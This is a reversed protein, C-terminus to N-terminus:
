SPPSMRSELYVRLFDHMGWGGHTRNWKLITERAQKLRVAEAALSASATALVEIEMRPVHTQDSVRIRYLGPAGVGVRAAPQGATWDLPQVAPGTFAAAQLGDVTVNLSYKGPPLVRLVPAISIEGQPTVAAVMEFNAAMAARGAAAPFARDATAPWLLLANRVGVFMEWVDPGPLPTIAPIRFGQACTQAEYCECLM